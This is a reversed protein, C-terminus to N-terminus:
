RYNWHEKRPEGGTDKTLVEGSVTPTCASRADTMGPISTIIRDISFPQSMRFLKCKGHTILIGLYEEMNGEDTM